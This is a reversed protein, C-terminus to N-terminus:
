PWVDCVAKREGQEKHIEHTSENEHIATFASNQLNWEIRHNYMARYHYVIPLRLVNMEIDRIGKHIRM